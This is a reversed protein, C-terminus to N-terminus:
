PLWPMLKELEENSMDKNLRYELLFELYKQSDVGNAKRMKVIYFVTM